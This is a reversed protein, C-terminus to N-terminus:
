FKYMGSIMLFFGGNYEGTTQLGNSKLKEQGAFAYGGRLTIATASIEGYACLYQYKLSNTENIRFKNVNNSIGLSISFYDKFLGDKLPFCSLALDFRIDCPLDFGALSSEGRIRFMNEPFLVFRLSPLGIWEFETTIIQSTYSFYLMPFPLIFLDIGGLTIGTDEAVLGGGLAFKMNDTKVIDRAYMLIGELNKYTGFPHAGRVDLKLIYSNKGDVVKGFLSMGYFNDEEYGPIGKNFIDQSYSFKTTIKDPCSAASDEKKTWLLQVSGSPSLIYSDKELELIKFDLTPVVNFDYDGAFLNSIMLASVFLGAIINKLNIKKLKM